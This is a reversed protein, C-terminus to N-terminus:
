RAPPERLDVAGDAYLIGLASLAAGTLAARSSGTAAALRDMVTGFTRVGDCEDLLMAIFPSVPTGEPREESVLVHGREFEGAGLVPRREVRTGNLVVPVFDFVAIGSGGPAGMLAEFQHRREARGRGLEEVGSLLSQPIDGRALVAREYGKAPQGATARIFASRPSLAEDEGTIRRAEWFYSEVSRNTSYFLRALQRFLNYQSDYLEKYVPAAERALAADNLATTVYAAAM